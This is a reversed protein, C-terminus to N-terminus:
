KLGTIYLAPGRKLKECIFTAQDFGAATLLAALEEGRQRVAEESHTGPPQEMIALLGGPKLVRWCEKLGALQDPWHHLSNIAWVKDFSGTEFPLAVVDAQRLEIRGQRLGRDNRRRAQRIMTESHDIGATFGNTALEAAQEIALGPGVGIELLHDTPQIDLQSIAWAIRERNEYAMIQGVLWGVIGRPHGFQSILYQKM